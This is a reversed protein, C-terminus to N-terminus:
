FIAKEMVEKPAKQGTWLEFQMMGQHLLMRRGDIIKAGAQQAQALFKTAGEHRYVLDFIVVEPKIFGNPVLLFDENEELGVSTANILIDPTETLLDEIKGGYRCGFEKALAVGHPVTRNIITIFAVLPKLAYVVARATGGAGLVVVRKGSLDPAVEQLAALFGPADTNTGWRKGEKHYITNVAGIQQAILDVGDLCAAVKEKHPLSVSFGEVETRQQLFSGLQEPPVDFAEFRADMGLAQFAANHMVPSLSHAVPHAIIGFLRSM